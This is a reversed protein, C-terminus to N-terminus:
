KSRSLVKKKKLLVFIGGFTFLAIVLLISLMLIKTGNEQSPVGEVFAHGETADSSVPREQSIEERLKEYMEYRTIHRGEAKAEEYMKELRGRFIRYKGLEGLLSRRDSPDKERNLIEFHLMAAEDTRIRYLADVAARKISFLISKPPNENPEQIYQEANLAQRILEVETNGGTEISEISAKILRLAGCKAESIKRYLYPNEKYQALTPGEPMTSLLKILEPIDEKTPKEFEKLNELATNTLAFEPPTEGFIPYRIDIVCGPVYGKQFEFIVVKEGVICLLGFAPKEKDVSTSTVGPRHGYGVSGLFMGTKEDQKLPV